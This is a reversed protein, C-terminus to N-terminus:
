DVDTLDMWARTSDIVEVDGAWVVREAATLLELARKETPAVVAVAITARHHDDQHDVESVSLHHRNRIRDVIPRVRSRKEKLSSSERVALEFRVAVVHM